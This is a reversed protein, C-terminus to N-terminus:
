DPMTELKESPRHPTKRWFFPRSALEHLGRWAALSLALWYIPLALQRWGLARREMRSMPMIGMQRMIIYSGFINLSDVFLLMLRGTEIRDLSGEALTLIAEGLTVLLLPHVLSSLIMGGILLHFGLWSATGIERRLALPSRMTVLWTQMWGKYWRTRQNLWVSWEVPADEITPAAIVGSRYGLRHLRLGLDADETVNFPDWAGVERLVETRFHNSTGGLPLPLSLRALAPLLSRFLAAYELAFLASFLSKQGNAIVLPAQLCALQRPSAGFRAAAEKLQSPHPRDEADYIVTFEGRAGALAYSLAKPKTVPLMAPVEIIEFQPGPRQHKLAAITDSDGAECVLKIDLRSAPWDLRRLAEILQPVM